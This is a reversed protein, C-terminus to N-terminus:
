ARSPQWATGVAFVIAMMIAVVAMVQGAMFSTSVNGGPSRAMHRCHATRRSRHTWLRRRGFVDSLAGAPLKLFVGTLTSAGMVFGILAPGAGLERPVRV